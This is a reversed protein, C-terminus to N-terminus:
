WTKWNTSPCRIYSVTNEREVIMVRSRRLLKLTTFDLLATPFGYHQAVAFLTLPDDGPLNLEHRAAQLDRTFADTYRERDKLDWPPNWDRIASPELRWLDDAHGRFVCGQALRAESSSAPFAARLGELLEEVSAFSPFERGDDTKYM